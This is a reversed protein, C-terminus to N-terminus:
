PASKSMDEIAVLTYRGGDERLTFRVADGPALGGLLSADSVDYDMKMAQMLGPVDGHELTVRNAVPDVALVVGEGEGTKASGGCAITALLAAGIWAALGLNSSKM